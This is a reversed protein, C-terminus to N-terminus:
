PELDLHPTLALQQYVFLVGALAEGLLPGAGRSRGGGARPYQTSFSLGIFWGAFSINHHCQTGTLGRHRQVNATFLLWFWSVSCPMYLPARLSRCTTVDKEDTVVEKDRAVDEDPVATQFAISGFRAKRTKQTAGKPLYRSSMSTVSEYVIAVKVTPKQKM